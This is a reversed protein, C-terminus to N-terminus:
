QTFGSWGGFSDRSEFGEVLIRQRQPAFELAGLLHLGTKGVATAAGTQPSIVYLSANRSQGWMGGWDGGYLQRTSADFALSDMLNSYSFDNGLRGIYTANGSSRNIRFLSFGDIGYLTDTSPDYALDRMGLIGFPGIATTAGSNRDITVLQNSDMDSGYLTDNGKVYALGAINISTGHDGIFTAHGTELDIKALGVQAWNDIAADSMYLVNRTYDLALDSNSADVGLNGAPAPLATATAITHLQDPDEAIGYLTTYVPTAGFLPATAALRVALALLLRTSRPSRM